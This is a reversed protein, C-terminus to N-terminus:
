IATALSRVPLSSLEVCHVNCLQWQYAACCFQSLFCAFCSIVVPSSRCLSFLTVVAEFQAKNLASYKNTGSMWLIRYYIPWVHSGCSCNPAEPWDCRVLCSPLLEATAIRMEGALSCSRTIESKTLQSLWQAKHLSALPRRCTGLLYLKKSIVLFLPRAATDEICISLSFVRKDLALRIYWGLRCDLGLFM